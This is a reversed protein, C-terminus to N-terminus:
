MFSRSTMSLWSRVRTTRRSCNWWFIQRKWHFSFFCISLSKLNKERNALIFLFYAFTASGETPTNRPAYKGPPPPPPPRSLWFVMKDFIGFGFICQFKPGPTGGGGKWIRWHNTMCVLGHMLTTVISNSM